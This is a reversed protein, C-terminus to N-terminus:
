SFASEMNPAPAARPTEEAGARGLACRLLFGHMLDTLRQQAALPTFLHDAAPVLHPQMLKRRSAPMARAVLDLEILGPDHEAYVHLMPVARAALTEFQRALAKIDQRDAGHELLPRLARGALARALALFDIDGRLLRVWSERRRMSHTLLWSKDKEAKLYSEIRKSSSAFYGQPNLMAAGVVRPEALAVRLSQVGGSCIGAVVFREAGRTAALLDM